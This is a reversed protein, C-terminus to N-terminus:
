RYLADLEGAYRAVVNRRKIKLTPTLLDNDTAFAEGCLKFAQIREFGKFGASLREVEQQILARARPDTLLRDSPVGQETGWRGLAELDPVLLAVNHPRNDGHVFAQAIYPSLTIQEELPAPAVYKGNELKYLEKVRGTISLFGDADLRGLDGSRLGGDPTLTQATVEPLAHYGQMVGMGHIIIEGQTQDAGAVTHDLEVWGGPVPKGVSGIRRETPTNATTVGSSETMGYGELVTIGLNDIFEAVAPSLAAAGSFAYRLRGGFKAIIKKFILRRALWRAVREGFSPSEGRKAKSIARMGAQFITQILVPKSAIQKSVGDYIRNWIRPVAFLLTPKVERLEAVLHQVDGCIGASAGIALIGNLEISGGFLHAWPLFAHSRDDPGAPVIELVACVNSALNLHSLRVGKPNGTTGSTYILTCVDTDAPVVPPAPPHKSPDVLSAYSGPQDPAADFCIVHQLGPIGAQIRKVRAAIGITSVLCLKSGSNELIYAWEKDLQSEYMPVYVAGLSYTAYAGVFWEVRNGSIVAVRDGTEVGLTRLGARFRDVREGVERYALWVWTGDPAPQGFLPREGFRRVSDQFMTVLNTFRPKFPNAPM